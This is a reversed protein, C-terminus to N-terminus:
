FPLSDDDAAVGADVGESPVDDAAGHFGEGEEDFLGGYGQGGGSRKEILQVALLRFSITNKVPVDSKVPELLAKVIDGTRIEMGPPLPQRDPGVVSPAFKSKATILKKGALEEIPEGDKTTKDDGDAILVNVKEFKIKPYFLAAAEKAAEEAGTDGDFVFTCKYKQDFKDDPKALYAFRATALVTRAIIKKGAM